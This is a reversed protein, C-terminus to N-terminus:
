DLLFVHFTKRGAERGHQGDLVTWLFPVRHVSAFYAGVGALLAAAIVLSTAERRPTTPNM